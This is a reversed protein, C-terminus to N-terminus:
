AVIDFTEGTDPTRPRRPPRQDRAPQDGPQRSGGRGSERAPEAIELRALTLHHDALGQRLLQQNAQLWERAVATDAQLRAVVAGQEVKVSVTLDGFQEPQLRIQAEGGGAAAQLRMSQIIQDATDAAPLDFAGLTAAAAVTTAQSSGQSGATLVDFHAPVLRAVAGNATASSREATAIIEQVLADVRSRVQATADLAPSNQAASAAAAGAVLGAQPALVRQALVQDLVADAAHHFQDTGSGQQAHKAFEALSMTIRDAAGAAVAPDGSADGPANGGQERRLFAALDAATWVHHQQGNVPLGDATTGIKVVDKAPTTSPDVPATAAADPTDSTGSSASRSKGDDRRDGSKASRRGSDSSSDEDETTLTDVLRHFSTFIEIDGGARPGGSAPGDAFPADNRASSVSPPLGNLM